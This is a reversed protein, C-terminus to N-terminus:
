DIQRACGAPNHKAEWVICPEVKGEAEQGHDRESGNRHWCRRHQGVLELGAHGPEAVDDLVAARPAHQGGGLIFREDGHLSM